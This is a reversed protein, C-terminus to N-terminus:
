HNLGLVGVDDQLWGCREEQAIFERILRQDEQPVRDLLSNFHFADSKSTLGLLLDGAWRPLTRILRPLEQLVARCRTPPPFRELTTMTRQYAGYDHRVQMSEVVAVAFAEGESGRLEDLLALYRNFRAEAEPQPVSTDDDQVIRGAQLLERRWLEFRDGEPTM